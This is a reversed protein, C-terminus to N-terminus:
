PVHQWKPDARYKAVINKHEKHAQDLTSYIDTAYVNARENDYWYRGFLGGPLECLIFHRTGHGWSATAHVIQRTPKMSSRAMFGGLGDFEVADVPGLTYRIANGYLKYFKTM